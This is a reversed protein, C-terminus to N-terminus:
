PKTMARIPMVIVKALGKTMVRAETRCTLEFRTGGVNMTIKPACREAPPDSQPTLEAVPRPASAPNKRDITVHKM